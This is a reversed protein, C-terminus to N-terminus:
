FINLSPKEREFLAVDGDSNGIHRKTPQVKTSLFVSCPEMTTDGALGIETLYADRGQAASINQHDPFKMVNGELGPIETEEYRGM